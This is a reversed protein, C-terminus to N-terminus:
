WYWTFLADVSDGFWVRLDKCVAEDCVTLIVVQAPDLKLPWDKFIKSVNSPDSKKQLHEGKFINCARWNGKRAPTAALPHSRKTHLPSQLQNTPSSIPFTSVLLIHSWNKPKPAVQRLSGHFTCSWVILNPRDGNWLLQSRQRTARAKSYGKM